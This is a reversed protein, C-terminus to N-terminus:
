LTRSWGLHYDIISPVRPHFRGTKNKFRAIFIFLQLFNFANLQLISQIRYFYFTFSTLLVPSTAHAARRVLVLSNTADLRMVQVQSKTVHRAKM